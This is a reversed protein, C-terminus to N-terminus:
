FNFRLNLGRRANLPSTTPLAAIEVEGIHKSLPPLSVSVSSLYVLDDPGSGSTLGDANDGLRVRLEGEDDASEPARKFNGLGDGLWVIMSELRSHPLWILDHHLDRNVDAAPLTGRAFARADFAVIREAPICNQKISGNTM